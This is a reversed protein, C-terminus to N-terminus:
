EGTILLYMSSDQSGFYKWSLSPVDTSLVPKRSMRGYTTGNRVLLLEPWM